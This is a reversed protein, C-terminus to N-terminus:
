ERKDRIVLTIDPLDLESMNALEKASNTSDRQFLSGLKNLM